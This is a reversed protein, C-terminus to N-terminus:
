NLEAFHFTLQLRLHLIVEIEGDEVHSLLNSIHTM